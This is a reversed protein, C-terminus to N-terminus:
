LSLGAALPWAGWTIYKEPESIGSIKLAGDERAFTLEQQYCGGPGLPFLFYFIVTAGTGSKRVSFDVLPMPPEIVWNQESFKRRVTNQLDKSMAAYQARGDKRKVASAWRSGLEGTEEDLSDGANQPLPANGAYAIIAHASGFSSIVFLLSALCIIIKLKGLM